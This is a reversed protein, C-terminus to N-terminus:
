AYYGNELIKGKLTPDGYPIAPAQIMSDSTHRTFRYGSSVTYIGDPTPNWVIQDHSDPQPLYIQQALSQDENQFAERNWQKSSSTSILESVNVNINSVNIGCSLPLAAPRPPNTPLRKDKFIRIEKGNCVQKLWDIGITHLALWLLPASM